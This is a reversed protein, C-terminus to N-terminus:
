SCTRVTAARPPRPAARRGRGAGADDPLLVVHRAGPAPSRRSSSPRASRPAPDASSCRRSRRRPGARGVEGGAVVMLVARERVFRGRLPTPRRVPRRHDPAAPGRRRGGRGGRRHRHLARPRELPRAGDGVVAVSDGLEALERACATSARGDPADLLYMVEYDYAASGTERAAILASPHGSGGPHPPPAAAAPRSVLARGARRAGPLRGAAPTSWGPGPWSPCSPPPPACRLQRPTPRRRRRRRGAPGLRPRPRPPPPPSCRSCPARARTSSAGRHALRRAAALADALVRGGAGGGVDAAPCAGAAAVRRPWGRAAGAVPDGRLQRAGRAARRPGARRGRRGGHGTRGAAEAADVAARM